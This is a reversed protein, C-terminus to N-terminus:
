PTTSSGAPASAAPLSLIAVHRTVTEGSAATLTVENPSGGTVEYVESTVPVSETAGDVETMGVSTNGAPALGFIVPEGAANETTIALGHEQALSTPGCVGGPVDGPRMGDHM